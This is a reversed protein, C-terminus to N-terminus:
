WHATGQQALPSGIRRDPARASRGSQRAPIRMVLRYLSLIDDPEAFQTRKHGV